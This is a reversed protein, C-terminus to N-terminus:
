RRSFCVWVSLICGRYGYVETNSLRPFVANARALTLLRGLASLCGERRVVTSGRFRINRASCDPHRGHDRGSRWWVSDRHAGRQWLAGEVFGAPLSSAIISTIQPEALSLGSVDLPRASKTVPSFPTIPVQIDSIGHHPGGGSGDFEIRQQNRWLHTKNSEIKDFAGLQSSDLSAPRFRM